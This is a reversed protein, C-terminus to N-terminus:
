VFLLGPFRAAARLAAACDGAAAGATWPGEKGGFSPVMDIIKAGKAAPGQKIDFAPTSPEDVARMPLSGRLLAMAEQLRGSRTLQTAEAMRANMTYDPYTRKFTEIWAKATVLDIIVGYQERAAKVLGEAGQGFLGFWRAAPMPVKPIRTRDRRVGARGLM